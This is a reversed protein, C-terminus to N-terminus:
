AVWADMAASLGDGPEFGDYGCALLGSEIAGVTALLDGQSVAGMHGIRFYESKIEPHLGGALIVGSERIKPLLDAKTVGEPYRPATMTHAAVDPSVPVQGLGMATIAAKCARSIAVHREFRAEMGEELILGLSVNLAEVLNVAPTGFYSPRRDEYAKMIPLWNAWDAYYNRVPTERAEFAAM